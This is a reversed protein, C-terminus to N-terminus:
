APSETCDDADHFRSDDNGLLDGLGPDSRQIGGALDDICDPRRPVVQEAEEGIRTREDNSRLGIHIGRHDSCCRQQLHDASGADATSLMSRSAAVPAPTSTTLAGFEFVM